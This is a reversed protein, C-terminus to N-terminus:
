AHYPCVILRANGTGQLLEHAWHQCINYFARVTRDRDRICFLAEGAISFTFYDGLM